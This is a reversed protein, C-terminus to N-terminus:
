ENAVDAQAALIRWHEAAELLLRKAEVDTAEEAKRECEDAKARFEAATITTSVIKGAASRLNLEPAAKPTTTKKLLANIMSRATAVAEERTGFVTRETPLDDGPRHIAVCWQGRVIGVRIAYRVGRHEM